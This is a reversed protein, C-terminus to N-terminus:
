MEYEQARRDVIKISIHAGDKEKRKKESDVHVCVLVCVCMNKTSVIVDAADNFQAGINKNYERLAYVSARESARAVTVVKQIRQWNRCFYKVMKSNLKLQTSHM